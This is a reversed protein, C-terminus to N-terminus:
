LFVKMLLAGFLLAFTIFIFFRIFRVSDYSTEDSILNIILERLITGDKVAMFSRLFEDLSLLFIHLFIHMGFLLYLWYFLRTTDIGTLLSGLWWSIFCAEAKWPFSNDEGFFM